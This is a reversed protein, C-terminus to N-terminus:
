DHRRKKWRLRKLTKDFREVLEEREYETMESVTEIFAERGAASRKALTDSQSQLASRLADANFPNQSLADRVEILGQRVNPNKKYKQHGDHGDEDHDDHDDQEDDLVKGLIGRMKLRHDDDLVEDFVGFSFARLMPPPGADHYRLAAGVVIGAVVLNLTVSLALVIKMWGFRRPKKQSRTM